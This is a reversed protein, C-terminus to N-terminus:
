RADETDPQDWGADLLKGAVKLMDEYVLANNALSRGLFADRLQVALVSRLHDRRKAKQQEAEMQDARDRLQNATFPTGRYTPYGDERDLADIVDAAHRLDAPFYPLDDTSMTVRETYANCWCGSCLGLYSHKFKPHGCTCRRLTLKLDAPRVKVEVWVACEDCEAYFEVTNGGQDMLEHVTLKELLCPGDKSQWGMSEGCLPCRMADSHIDDFMGM